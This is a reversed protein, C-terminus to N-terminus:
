IINELHGQDQIQCLVEHSLFAVTIRQTALELERSSVQKHLRLLKYITCQSRHFVDVNAKLNRANGCIMGISISLKEIM